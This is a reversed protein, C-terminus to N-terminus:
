PKPTAVRRVAAQLLPPVAIAGILGVWVWWPIAALPNRAAASFAEKEEAVFRDWNDDAFRARVQLTDSARAYLFFAGWVAATDEPTLRQGSEYTELRAAAHGIKQKETATLPPPQGGITATWRKNEEIAAKYTDFWFGFLKEDQDGAFLPFATRAFGQDVIVTGNQKALLNWQRLYLDAFQSAPNGLSAHRTPGELVSVGPGSWPPANIVRRKRTPSPIVFTSTISAGSDAQSFRRM